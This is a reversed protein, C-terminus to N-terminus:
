YVNELLSERDPWPAKLAEAYAQTAAREWRQEEALASAESLLDEAIMQRRFKKVPCRAMWAEGEERSRYGKDYDMLPGVHEYIRYTLCEVFAPGAGARIRDIANKMTQYVLIVDNGDIQQTKLEPVRVREFIQSPPQRVSLSSHTSYMNNECVFLIPLKQTVAFNLSEMFVGEEVAGDGFVAVAVSNRGDMRFAMAAGVAVPIMAGLIPSSYVGIDPDTLHASGARGSCIGAARGCLEAFFPRLEGGRALFAAHCRHGTFLQDDKELAEALGSAVAEQGISLHTPTRIKQDRVYVEIIKEEAKRVKLMNSFLRAKIDPTVLPM